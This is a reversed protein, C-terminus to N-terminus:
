HASSNGVDFVGDCSSGVSSSNLSWLSPRPLVLLLDNHQVVEGVNIRIIVM